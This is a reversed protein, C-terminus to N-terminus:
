AMPKGGAKNMQPGDKNTPQLSPPVKTKRQYRASQQASFGLRLTLRRQLDKPTKGGLLKEVMRCDFAAQNTSFAIHPRFLTLAEGVLLIKGGSFSARPSCYDTIVQLFPQSLKSLVEKYPEPLLLAVRQCQQQWLDPRIKGTPVTTHHRKGECDTTYDTLSELPVNSYWCFNLYRDGEELSGNEGPIHYSQSTAPLQFYTVNKQFIHRTALSVDSEKAVGRWAVYGAYTPRAESDPVFTRRVVSHSGDAGLLLDAHMLHETQTAIDRVRVSVMGENTDIDVVQKGSDYIADGLGKGQIGAPQHRDVSTVGDFNARLRHYLVDWSTMIRKAKLFVTVKGDHDMSQLCESPIGLPQKVHDFRELFDLVDQAAGIGAM